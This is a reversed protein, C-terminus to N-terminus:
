SWSVHWKITSPKKDDFRVSGDKAGTMNLLELMYGRTLGVHFDEFDPFDDVQIILSNDKLDTVHAKGDKYFTNWMVAVRKIIFSIKPIKIFIKYVGNMNLQAITRGLLVMREPNNPFLLRAGEIFIERSEDSSIWDTAIVRHYLETSTPSLKCLLDNEISDGKQKILKKLACINTAKVIPM